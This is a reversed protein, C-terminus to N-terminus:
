VCRTTRLTWHTHRASLPQASSLDFSAKAFLERSWFSMGPTLLLAFALWNRITAWEPKVAVVLAWVLVSAIAFLSSVGLWFFQLQARMTCQQFYSRQLAKLVGNFSSAASRAYLAHWGQAWQGRYLGIWALVAAIVLLWTARHEQNRVFAVPLALILAGFSFFKLQQLAHVGARNASVPAHDTSRISAGALLTSALSLVFLLGLWAYISVPAAAGRLWYTGTASATLWLVLAFWMM